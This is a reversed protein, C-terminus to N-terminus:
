WGEIAVVVPKGRPEQPRDTAPPGPGASGPPKPGRCRGRAVRSTAAWPGPPRRGPADAAMRHPPIKM